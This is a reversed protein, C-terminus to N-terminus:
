CVLRNNRGLLIWQTVAGYVLFVWRNILKACCGNDRAQLRWPTKLGQPTPQVRAVCTRASRRSILARLFYISFEAVAVHCSCIYKPVSYPNLIFFFMIMMFDYICRLRLRMCIALSVTRTVPLRSCVSCERNEKRREEFVRQFRVIALRTWKCWCVVSLWSGSWAYRALVFGWYEYGMKLRQIFGGFLSSWKYQYCDIQKKNILEEYICNHDLVFFTNLRFTHRENFYEGFATVKVPYIPWVRVTVQHDTPKLADGCVRSLGGCVGPTGSLPLFPRNWM